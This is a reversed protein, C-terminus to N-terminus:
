KNGATIFINCNNNNDNISISQIVFYDLDSDRCLCSINEKRFCGSHRHSGGQRRGFSYWHSKRQLELSLSM